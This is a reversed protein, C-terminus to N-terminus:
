KRRQSAERSRHRKYLEDRSGRFLYIRGNIRRTEGPKLPGVNICLHMCQWPNHGQASLFRDWAIGTVWEGDTSERLMLGSHANKPSTPWKFSFPYTGDNGAVSDVQKRLAENFHIERQNLKTLGNKGVYWTNRNDFQPNLKAIPWRKQQGKPAGPNFCPIIGAIAPWEHDTRNTIELSLEVGDKVTKMTLTMDDAQITAANGDKSVRREFSHSGSTHQGPRRADFMNWEYFWLYVRMDPRRRSEVGIGKGWEFLRVDSQRTLRPRTLDSDPSASDPAFPEHASASSVVLVHVAAVVVPIHNFM